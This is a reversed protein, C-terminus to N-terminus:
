SKLAAGTELLSKLDSLIWAWGGGAGADENSGDIMAAILPAGTVDHTVTLRVVGGDQPTIDYEVRTFGEAEADPDMLMRWTLVFRKPPDIELLEGDIIPGTVGVAQMGVGANTVYKTGPTMDGYEPIGGYGYRDTWDPSTIAEWVAEPTTKIWVRYVQTTVTGATM